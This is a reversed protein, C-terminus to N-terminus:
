AHILEGQNLEEPQALWRAITSRHVDFIHALELQDFQIENQRVLAKALAQDGQRVARLRGVDLRGSNLHAYERLADVLKFGAGDVAILYTRKLSHLLTEIEAGSARAVFWALLRVQADSVEIPPAYRRIIQLREQFSPLDLAIQVDFRRWIAPDLLAEHNTIAITPGIRRRSDLNQLLTNVVRKIEGVEQPDDRMKAISDFEDLLL